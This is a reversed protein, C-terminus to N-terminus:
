PPAPPQPALIAVVRLMGAHCHPCRALDVGAIRQWFAVVSERMPARAPPAPAQLAVRAQALLARKNRNALLGYHRIRNFGRPLVHLVFRRLFEAPALSLLRRRSGHAYDKYRFRVSRDDFAVIRENSIATRHTYRGLYELVQEPGAFPRKAYVVWPQQRLTALLTCQARSEALAASTGSLKLRGLALAAGLAALFKGRFVISLAKVPFLFGRRSRVWQGQPNLAGAAVLGHVHLHQDLRQGWTHLVLTAAIEGGLWRPNAGFELLTESAAAFLMTYLARPNGQALANLDHPLTFVLHYYPVPLLEARRAALWREKALTQCKPCHRNRCSHYVYRQKGCADCQRLEGGLAATRCREIARLARHQVGCLRHAARFAAGYRRVIDALEVKATRARAARAAM